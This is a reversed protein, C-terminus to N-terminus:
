VIIGGHREHKMPLRVRIDLVFLAPPSLLKRLRFVSSISHNSPRADYLNKADASKTSFSSEANRCEKVDEDGTEMTKEVPRIFLELHIGTNGEATGNFNVKM